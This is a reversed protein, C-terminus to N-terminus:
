TVGNPSAADIRRYGPTRVLRIPKWPATREVYFAVGDREEVATVAGDQRRWSLAWIALFGAAVAPVQPFRWALGASLILLLFLPWLRNLLIRGPSTHEPLTTSTRAAALLRAVAPLTDRGRGLFGGILAAITWWALSFILLTTDDDLWVARLALAGLVTAGAACAMVTTKLLDVFRV